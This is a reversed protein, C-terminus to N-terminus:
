KLPMEKWAGGMVCGFMSGMTSVSSAPLGSAGLELWPHPSPKIGSRPLHFEPLQLGARPQSQVVCASARLAEQRGPEVGDRHFFSLHDVQYDVVVEISTLLNCAPSRRQRLTPSLPPDGQLAAVNAAATGQPLCPACPSGITAPRRSPHVVNWLQQGRSAVRMSAPSCGM